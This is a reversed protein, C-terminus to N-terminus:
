FYFNSNSNSVVRCGFIGHTAPLRITIRTKGGCVSVVPGRKANGFDYERKM